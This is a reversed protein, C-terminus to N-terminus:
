IPYNNRYTKSNYKKLEEKYIITVFLLLSHFHYNLKMKSNPDDLCKKKRIAEFIISLCPYVFSYEYCHLLSIKKNLRLPISLKVM